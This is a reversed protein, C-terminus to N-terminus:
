TREGGFSHAIFIIPRDETQFWHLCLLSVKLSFILNGSVGTSRRKNALHSILNQAHDYLSHDTVQERGKTYADYGYTFIRARPIGVPFFIEFGHYVTRRLGRNKECHGTLDM